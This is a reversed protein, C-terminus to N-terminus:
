SPPLVYVAELRWVSFVMGNFGFEDADLIQTRDLVRMLLGAGSNLPYSRGRRFHTRLRTELVTELAHKGADSAQAFGYVRPYQVHGDRAAGNAAENDGGDIVSVVNQMRPPSVAGNGPLFVGQTAGSGSGARPLRNWIGGPFATNVDSDNLLQLMVTSQVQPAAVAM